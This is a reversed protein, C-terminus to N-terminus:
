TGPDPFVAVVDNADFPIEAAGDVRVVETGWAVLVGRVKSGDRLTVAVRHAGMRWEPFGLVREKIEDPLIVGM